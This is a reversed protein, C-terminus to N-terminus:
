HDSWFPRVVDSCESNIVAYHISWREKQKEVWQTSLLARNAMISLVVSYPNITPAFMIIHNNENLLIRQIDDVLNEMEDYPSKIISYQENMVTISKPKEVYKEEKYMVYPKVYSYLNPFTKLRQLQVIDNYIDFGIVEFDKVGYHDKTTEDYFSELFMDLDFPIVM